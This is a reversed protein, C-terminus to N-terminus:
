NNPKNKRLIGGAYNFIELKLNQFDEICSMVEAEIVEHEMQYAKECSKGLCEMVGGLESEHIILCSKIKDINDETKKIRSKYDMLREFLNPTKPEFVYSNLLRNIFLLEDDMLLFQSKWKLSEWHLKEMKKEQDTKILSNKM